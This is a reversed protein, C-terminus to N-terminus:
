PNNLKWQNYMSLINSARKKSVSVILENLKQEIIEQHQNRNQLSQDLLKHHLLEVFKAVKKMSSIDETKFYYKQFYQWIYDIALASPHIMDSAYFRYDRLDDMMIEYSPFYSVADQDSVVEHIAAHLISKARANEITGYRIHRVPSLTFHVHAAPSKSKIVSVIHQCIEKSEEFTSLDRRFYRSHKKHCNNIIKQSEILKFYWASGLTIFVHQSDRVAFDLSNLADICLNSLAEKSNANITSHFLHHYSVGSASRTFLIDSQDLSNTLHDLIIQPHFIIGTPNIVTHLGNRQCQNGINQSFCSGLFLLSSDLNILENRPKLQIQTRFKM